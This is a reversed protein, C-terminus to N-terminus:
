KEIKSWIKDGKSPAYKKIKLAFKNGHHDELWRDEFGIEMLPAPRTNPDKPDEGNTEDVSHFWERSEKCGIADCREPKDDYCDRHSYHGVKCLYERYGEYSM